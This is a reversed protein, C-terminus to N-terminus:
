KPSVDYMRMKGSIIVVTESRRERLPASAIVVNDSAKMRAAYALICRAKAEIIKSIRNFPIAFGDHNSAAKLYRESYAAFKGGDDQHM